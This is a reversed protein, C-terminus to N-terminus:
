RTFLGKVTDFTRSIIGGGDDGGGDDEVHSLDLDPNTDGFSPSEGSPGDSGGRDPSDSSPSFAGGPEFIGEAGGGAPGGGGDRFDALEDAMSDPFRRPVVHSYKGKIYDAIEDKGTLDGPVKDDWRNVDNRTITM